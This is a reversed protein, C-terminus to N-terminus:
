DSWIGKDVLAVASDYRDDASDAVGIKVTVEQGPMVASNCTLPVTLGDMTTSYGAAGGANDVFYGANTQGNISNVSVPISTGPVLACSQGNILVQMIDNYQSGVYEPYEESAFVYKVHLTSGQPILRLQYTAADFTPQGALASLDADGPLGLQTSAFEDPTGLADVIRGTSLVWSKAGPVFGDVYGTQEPSGTTSDELVTVGDGVATDGPGTPEAPTTQDPLQTCDTPWFWPAGGYGTRGKLFDFTISRNVDWSGVWAKATLSLERTFAADTKLCANRRKDGVPFVAGISTDIPNLKGGVGAIVGASATGAGPGIIVEGGLMAGISGEVTGLVQTPGASLIPSGGFKVGSTIGFSGNFRFGATATVGVDKIEASGNVTAEAVPTFYFSIPVPTATLTRLLPKIPATCKLSGSVKADLAATATATFEMDLSAGTPIEKGFIKYKDIKVGFHGGLGLSPKLTISESASGGACAKLVPSVSRRMGSRGPEALGLSAPADQFTPIDLSYFDFADDLGGATLVATGDAGIATVRGLFGGALSSSPPLVIPTGIVPPGGSGKLRLAVGTGTPLASTIDSAEVLMTGPASIFSAASSGAPPAASASIAIPGTWRRGVKTFLAYSYQRGSVLKADVATRGKARVAAGGVRTAPADPGAARRLAFSAGKPADWALSLRSGEIKTARLRSSSPVSRYRVRLQLARGPVVRIVRKSVSGVYFRGRYSVPRAIVTHRRAALSLTVKARIGTAPKAAVRDAGGRVLVNAPVGQPTTISIVVRGSAASAPAAASAGLATLTAALLFAMGWPHRAVRAMSTNSSAHLVTRKM